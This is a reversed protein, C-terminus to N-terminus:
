ENEKNFKLAESMKRDFEYADEKLWKIFKKWAGPGEKIRVFHLAKLLVKDAKGEEEWDRKYTDEDILSVRAKYAM